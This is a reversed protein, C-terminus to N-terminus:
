ILELEQQNRNIINVIIINQKTGAVKSIGKDKRHDISRCLTKHQDTNSMEKCSYNTHM